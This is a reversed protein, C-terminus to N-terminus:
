SNLYQHSEDVVLNEVKIQQQASALAQSAIKFKNEDKFNKHFRKLYAHLYKIRYTPDEESQLFPLDSEVM